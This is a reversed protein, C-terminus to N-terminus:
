CLRCHIFVKITDVEQLPQLRLALVAFFSATILVSVVRLCSSILCTNHTRFLTGAPERPFSSSDLSCAILQGESKVKSFSCIVM